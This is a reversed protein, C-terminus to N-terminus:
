KTKSRLAILRAKLDAESQKFLPEGGPGSVEHKETFLKLNKGLLELARNAGGAEFQWIDRGEDDTKQVWEKGRQVMVPARELCREAVVKLSSLVYDADIQTRESRADMLEQLRAIIEPKKLHDHGQSGATKESYGARIAAQTANLDKLYEQCFAEQKPNLALKKPNGEPDNM